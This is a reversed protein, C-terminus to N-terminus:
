KPPMRISGDIRFVEGNIYKNEIIHQCLHAYEDPDGTYKTYTHIHM